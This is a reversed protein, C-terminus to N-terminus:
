QSPIASHHADEKQRLESRVRMLALGLLNKGKWSRLAVELSRFHAATEPNLGVGWVKDMPSAEAIYKDGTALLQAALHPNQSFKAMNVTYVLEECKADWVDQKFGRVLRGLRKHERPDSTRMIKEATDRDDFLAAKGFMMAQEACCFTHGDLRFSSRTWQSGWGPPKWFFVGWSNSLVADVAAM